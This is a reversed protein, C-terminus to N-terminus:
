HPAEKTGHQAIVMSTGVIRENRVDELVFVYEREFPDKVKGSFSKVSQDILAELVETNNPLNVSNLQSALRQLGELDNKRVDRLLLMPRGPMYCPASTRGESPAEQCTRAM